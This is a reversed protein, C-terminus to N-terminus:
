EDYALLVERALKGPKIGLYDTESFDDMFAGCPRDPFFGIAFYTEPTAYFELAEKLKVVEAELQAITQDKVVACQQYGVVLAKQEKENM